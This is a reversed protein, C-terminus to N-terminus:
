RDVNCKRDAFILLVNSTYVSASAAMIMEGGSPFEVLKGPPGTAVTSSIEVAAGQKPIVHIVAVEIRAPSHPAAPIEQIADESRSVPLGYRIPTVVGIGTVVERFWGHKLEPRSTSHAALDDMEKCKTNAVGLLRELSDGSEDGFTSSGWPGIV